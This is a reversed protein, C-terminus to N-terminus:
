NSGVVEVEDLVRLTEALLAAQEYQGCHPLVLMLDM